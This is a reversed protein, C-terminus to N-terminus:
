GLIVCCVKTPCTGAVFRLRRRRWADTITEFPTERVRDFVEVARPFSTLWRKSNVSISPEERVGGSAHKRPDFWWNENHFGVLWWWSRSSSWGRRWLKIILEIQARDTQQELPSYRRLIPCGRPASSWPPPRPREGKRGSGFIALNRTRTAALKSGSSLWGLASNRKVATKVHAAFTRFRTCSCKQM